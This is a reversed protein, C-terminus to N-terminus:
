MNQMMFLAGDKPDIALAKQISLPMTNALGAAGSLLLSKRLFERRGNM